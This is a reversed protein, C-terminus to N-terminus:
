LFILIANPTQSRGTIVRRGFNQRSSNSRLLSSTTTRTLTGMAACVSRMSMGSSRMIFPREKRPYTRASCEFGVGIPAGEQIADRSTRLDSDMQTWYSTRRKKLGKQPHRASRMSTRGCLVCLEQRRLLHVPAFVQM